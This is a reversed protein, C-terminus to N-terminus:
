SRRTRLSVFPPPEIERSFILYLVLSGAWVVEPFGRRRDPAVGAIRKLAERKILQRRARWMSVGGAEQQGLHGQGELMFGWNLGGGDRKKGELWLPADFGVPVNGSM